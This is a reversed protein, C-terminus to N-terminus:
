LPQIVTILLSHTPQGGIFGKIWLPLCLLNKLNVPNDVEEGCPYHRIRGVLAANLRKSTM